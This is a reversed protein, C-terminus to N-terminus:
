TRSVSASMACAGPCDRAQHRTRFRSLVVQDRVHRPQAAFGQGLAGHDGGEHEEEEFEVRGCPHPLCLRSRGSRRAAAHQHPGLCQAPDAADLCNASRQDVVARQRCRDLAGAAADPQAQRVLDLAQAGVAGERGDPAHHGPRRERLQAVRRQQQNPRHDSHEHHVQRRHQQRQQRPPFARRSPARAQSSIVM